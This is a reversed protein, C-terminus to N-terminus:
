GIFGASVASNSKLVETDKAGRSGRECAFWGGRRLINELSAIKAVSASGTKAAAVGAETTARLPPPLLPDEPLEPEPLEPEPEAVVAHQLLV